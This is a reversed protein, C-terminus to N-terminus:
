IDLIYRTMRPEAKAATIEGARGTEKLWRKGQRIAEAETKYTYGSRCNLRGDHATFYWEFM